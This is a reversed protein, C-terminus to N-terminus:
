LLVALVAAGRAAACGSEEGHTGRGILSAGAVRDGRCHGGLGAAWRGAYRRAEGARARGEVLTPLVRCVCIALRAVRGVSARFTADGVATNSSPLVSAVIAVVEM